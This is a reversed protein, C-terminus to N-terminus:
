FKIQKKLLFIRVKEQNSSSSSRTVPGTTSIDLRTRIVVRNRPYGERKTAKRLTDKFLMLTEEMSFYFLYEILINIILKIFVCFPHTLSIDGM